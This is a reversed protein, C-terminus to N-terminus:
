KVPILKHNNRTEPHITRCGIGKGRHVLDQWDFGYSTSCPRSYPLTPHGALGPDRRKQEM